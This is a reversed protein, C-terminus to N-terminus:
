KTNKREMLVYHSLGVGDPNCSKRKAITPVPIAGVTPRATKWHQKLSNKQM